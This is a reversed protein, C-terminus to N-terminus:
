YPCLQILNTLQNVNWSFRKLYIMFVQASKGGQEQILAGIFLFLTKETERRAATSHAM